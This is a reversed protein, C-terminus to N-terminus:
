FLYVRIDNTNIHSYPKNVKSFFNRLTIRYFLLTNPSLGEISKAVLFYKLVEPEGNDITILDTSQKQFQYKQAVVDLIQALQDLNEIEMDESLKSFLEIKFM